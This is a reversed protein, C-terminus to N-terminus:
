GVTRADAPNDLDPKTVTVHESLAVGAIDRLAVARVPISDDVVLVAIEKRRPGQVWVLEGDQILRIKAEAGNLRVMPGREADGRRTSVYETVMLQPRFRSGLKLDPALGKRKM